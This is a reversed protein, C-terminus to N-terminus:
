REDTQFLRDAFHLLGVFKSEYATVSMEGQELTLLEREKGARAASSIFQLDFRWVFKDWPLNLREEQSFQLKYWKGADGKLSFAALRHRQM